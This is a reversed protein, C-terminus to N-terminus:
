SRGADIRNLAALQQWLLREFHLEDIMLPARFAAIFSAYHHQRFLDSRLFRALDLALTLSSENSGLERYAKVTISGANLAAKAGLCPYDAQSILSAFSMRVNKESFDETGSGSTKSGVVSPGEAEDGM